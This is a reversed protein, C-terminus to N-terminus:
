YIRPIIVGDPALIRGGGGGLTATKGNNSNNIGNENTNDYKSLASSRELSNLAERAENENKNDRLEGLRRIQSERVVTNDIRLADVM